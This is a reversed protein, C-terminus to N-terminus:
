GAAFGNFIRLVSNSITTEKDFEVAGSRIRSWKGSCRSPSRSGWDRSSPGTITLRASSKSISRMASYISAANHITQLTQQLVNLEQSTQLQAERSCSLGQPRPTLRPNPHSGV